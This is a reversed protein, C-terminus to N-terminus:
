ARASREPEILYARGGWRVPRGRALDVAGGRIAGAVLLCGLPWGLIGIRPMGGRGFVVLLAAGSFVLGAVGAVMALIGLLMGGLSAAVVGAGLSAIATVPGLGAAAVRVVNRNMRGINRHCSEIFIRRWGGLLDELSEYMSTQIRDGSDVVRVRGDLRHVAKAFALDELLDDKV